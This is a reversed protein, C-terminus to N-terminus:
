LDEGHEIRAILTSITLPLPDYVEVYIRSHDEGSPTLEIDKDGNFLETPDGYDEGERFPVEVLNSADPGIFLHRTNQLRALVSVVRRPRDQVTDGGEVPYEFDMTELSSTYPLGVHVTEAAVPLTIAGNTVTLNKVVGGDALAVVDMGELHNLGYFTSAVTGYYSLGSDVFFSDEVKYDFNADFSLREGLREIYRRHKGDGEIYREVVAYTEDSGGRTRISAISEFFGQTEHQHWGWIEQEKFYTLGLLKGDNRVCWLISDPFQQYAWEEITYAALLHSALLTLDDGKYSDIELSYQFDRVVSGSGEVFLITNGVVIPPVNSAGRKSAQKISVSLPGLAKNESGSSVKWEAGSTFVILENMPVLARIENVQMANITFQFADDDKIPASRSMNDFFGIVSGFLTQPNDNTRGYILRQEYFTAVGPYNNAGTFPTENKAFTISTDPTIGGSPISFSTTQAQGVWGYFGSANVEKYVYYYAVSGVAPATWSLTNGDACAGSASAQSMEGDTSIATVKYNYTTGTGTVATPAGISPAYTITSLTWATHGTRTLSRPAYTPHTIYLVDASQTFKLLPLDAEAYPMAIEYVKALTGGSVYATMDAGDVANTPGVDRYLDITNVDIVSVKFSRSNLQITGVIDEIFVEHGTTLGHATATVRVPDSLVVSSINVATQLVQGGDKLVRMYAAGFELIYAQEVSFQFPYLRTFKSSDKVEAIFQFGPRNSVGGQPHCLFNKMLRSASGYRTLDARSYLGPSWEGGVFTNQSKSITM